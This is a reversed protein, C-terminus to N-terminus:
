LLFNIVAIAITIIIGLLTLFALIYGPIQLIEKNNSIWKKIKDTTNVTTLDTNDTLTPNINETPQEDTQQDFEGDFNNTAELILEWGQKKSRPVTLRMDRCLQKIDKLPLWDHILDLNFRENDVIEAILEETNGDIEYGYNGDLFDILEDDDPNIYLRIWERININSEEENIIRIEIRM